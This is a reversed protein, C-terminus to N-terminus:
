NNKPFHENSLLSLQYKIFSADKYDIVGVAIKLKTSDFFTSGSELRKAVDPWPVFVVKGGCHTAIIQAIDKLCYDHGGINFIGVDRSEVLRCVAECIDGVYTFTRRITGNGFLTIVGDKQIQKLFFGITGYSYDKSVLSGYPVCIRVVVYPLNYLAHYAQLLYECALKNAAYVTKAEKPADESLPEDSGKYVLRTSPFIIKPAQTGLPAIRMLLNLLGLENVDVFREAETFSKETGTMGAFFLIASYDTPSFTEWCDARTVDFSPVDFVDYAVGKAAFYAALQSGLYGNGGFIAIRTM